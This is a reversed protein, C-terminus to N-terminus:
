DIRRATVRTTAIFRISGSAAAGFRGAGRLISTAGPTKTKM